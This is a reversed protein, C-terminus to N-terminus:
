HAPPPPAFLQQKEHFSKKSLLVLSRVPGFVQLACSACVVFRFVEEGVGRRWRVVGRERGVECTVWRLEYLFGM